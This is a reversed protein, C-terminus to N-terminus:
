SWDNPDVSQVADRAKVERNSRAFAQLMSKVKQHIAQLKEQNSLASFVPGDIPENYVAESIEDILPEIKAQQGTFYITLTGTGDQNRKYEIM